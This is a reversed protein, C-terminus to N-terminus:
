DNRLYWAGKIRQFRIEQRVPPTGTEFTFAASEGDSTYRPIKARLSRLIALLDPAKAEGFRQAANQLTTQRLMQAKDDPALFRDLFAEYEKRELLRVMERISGAVEGGLDGTPALDEERADEKDANSTAGSKNDAQGSGSSTTGTGGAKADGEDGGKSTDGSKADGQNDGSSDTAGGNDVAGADSGEDQALVRPVAAWFLVLALALRLSTKM